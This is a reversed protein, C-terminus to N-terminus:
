SRIKVRRPGCEQLSIAQADTPFPNLSLFSFLLVSRLAPGFSKPANAISLRLQPKNLRDSSFSMISISV